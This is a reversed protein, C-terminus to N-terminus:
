GLMALRWQEHRDARTVCRGRPEVTRVRRLLLSSSARVPAPALAGVAAGPTWNSSCASPASPVFAPFTAIINAVTAAARSADTAAGNATICTANVAAILNTFGPTFAAPPSCRASYLVVWGTPAAAAVGGACACLGNWRRHNPTGVATEFAAAWRGSRADRDCRRPRLPRYWGPESARANRRQWSAGVRELRTWEGAVAM